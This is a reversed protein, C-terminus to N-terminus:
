FSANIGFTYFTLPPLATNSISGKVEPDLGSYDTITFLNQGSVFVKVSKYTLVKNWNAPLNWSLTINRLRVYSADELMADSGNLNSLIVNLGSNSNFRQVPKVDGTKQWRNLVSNPQNIRSTGPNRGYYYSTAKQSSFQFFFDLEFGHYSLMNNIGGYCTPLLNVTETRDKFIDPDTTTNGNKTIFNYLGTTDNVGSFKFLRQISIPQGVILYEAYSSNSLNSFSKLKNQPITINFSTTWLFRKTQINRSTVQFELGTNFVTAPFNALVFNEGAIDPLQYNLIQNSSQNRFYTSLLVIRDNLFGLDLGLEWKKSKEWQYYPNPIGGPYTGLVNQYPLPYTVYTNMYNYEGVQDNGSIGYSSRIKGYSMFSLHKKFYPRESFIWGLGVSGFNAFRNEPGYRSSGDRRGTLTALFEDMYRASIRGFLASYKYESMDSGLATIQRASKIDEIVTENSYGTGRLSYGDIDTQQVTAGLLSELSFKNTRLNYSLQPEIIWSSIDNNFYLGANENRELPQEASLPLRQTAKTSMSNYGLSTKFELGTVIKYGITLNSLLNSTKNNYKQLTYRLPHGFRWTSLGAPTTAWNLTGDANYLNPANPALEISSQTLDVGPLTNFDKLYNLKFQLNFKKNASTSSISAHTGAKQNNFDGPFVSTERRYTLGISYQFNQSGGSATANINTLHSTNGLLVKQWDENKTSDWFGNIDYDTARVAANDNAKAEKRMVIYQDIDLLDLKRSVNGLGFQAMINVTPEGTRSRKTTIVIAGNAARSGYIATADAGKLISISEIDNPNIYSLPNGLRPRTIGSRGLMTAGNDPLEQIYPVGDVIYFPENGSQISNQGQILTTVGGGPLGNNVNVFLGPARGAIGALPNSLVQYQLEKGSVSSVNGTAYRNTNKGYAIVQVEDLKGSKGIVRISLDKKGDIAKEVSQINVATLVLVADPDAKIRAVGEADTAGSIKGGKVQITVGAVPEGEENVVKVTVEIPDKDTAALAVAKPAPDSKKQRYIFISNGKVEYQLPQNEFVKKLVDLYSANNIKLTVKKTGALDKFDFMVMMGTQREIEAFVKDLGVDKMNITIQSDAKASVQLCAATLLIALLNVRLLQKGLAGTNRRFFAQLNALLKEQSHFTLKM